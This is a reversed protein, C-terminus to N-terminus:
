DVASAEVFYDYSDLDIKHECYPQLFPVHSGQVPYCYYMLPDDEPENFLKRIDELKIGKLECKGIMAEGPDKEFWVLEREVKQEKM